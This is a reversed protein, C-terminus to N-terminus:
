TPRNGGHAIVLERRFREYEHIERGTPVLVLDRAVARVRERMMQDAHDRERDAALLVMNQCGSSTLWGLLLIAVVMVALWPILSSDSVLASLHKHSVLAAIVGIWALGAIALAVLLWQWFLVLRWWGTVNSASPLAERVAAGLASQADAAGFRAADRVTRSWPEPLQGGVEDAFGTIANDIDSQQAQGAAAAAISRAEGHPGGARLGRVPDRGQRWRALRALPWGVYRIAQAERVGQMADTVASLGAARAFADNLEAAPGAPVLAVPDPDGADDRRGDPTADEWPPRSPAPTRNDQDTEWPPAGGSRGAGAVDHGETGDLTADEWPPRAEGPDAQGARAADAAGDPGQGDAAAEAEAVPPDTAAGSGGPATLMVPERDGPAPGGAHEAFGGLVSDIDAAIRESAAQRASVANVLVAQLEDLGAGTRASVPLLQSDALGESDLLRRLDSECDSIQDPSLLDIQNLVVTIVSAHGALPILYRRHVADDAYKQPDLVWILMDALKSLRDVAAMSATVVSDHDPLDLLLLGTLAAEGADLASARAYRHRRQVGLWDLLPAAGQMGWVCAHVHRTTPRTVGAPSFNAGSLANFLSSKGSGTGGALAIVTHSASLRLREGARRLLAESESILEPSFGDGQADRGTRTSGIRVLQALADLRAPLNMQPLGAGPLAHTSMAEHASIAQTTV